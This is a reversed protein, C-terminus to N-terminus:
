AQQTQTTYATVLGFQKSHHLVHKYHLQVWEEFTLSGFVPHTHQLTKNQGFLNFFQFIEDDLKQLAVEYSIERIPIPQEPLVPAKTNEKFEKDSMLFAKLKPLNEVSSVLPMKIKGTSLSFFDVLHEVTQQANMLGWNGTQTAHLSVFRHPTEAIFSQKQAHSLM